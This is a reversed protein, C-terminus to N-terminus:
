DESRWDWKDHTVQLTGIEEELFPVDARGKIRTLYGGDVVAQPFSRGDKLHVTVVWYGMGTEPQGRFWAAFRSDELRLM